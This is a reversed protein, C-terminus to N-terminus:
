THCQAYKAEGKHRQRRCRMAGGRRSVVAGIGSDQDDCVRAEEDFLCVEWDVPFCM